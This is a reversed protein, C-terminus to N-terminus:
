VYQCHWLSITSAVISRSTGRVLDLGIGEPRIVRDPAKMDNQTIHVAVIITVANVSPFSASSTERGIYTMAPMYGNM